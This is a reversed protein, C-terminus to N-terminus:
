ALDIKVKIGTSPFYIFGKTSPKFSLSLCKEWSLLLKKKEQNMLLIFWGM